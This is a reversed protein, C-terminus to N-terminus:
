QAPELHWQVNLKGIFNQGGSKLTVTFKKDTQGPMYFDLKGTYDSIDAEWKVKDGLMVVIGGNAPAATATVGSSPKYSYQIADLVWIRDETEEPEKSVMVDQGIVSTAHDTNISRYGITPSSDGIAKTIM